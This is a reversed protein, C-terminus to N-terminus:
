DLVFRSSLLQLLLEVTHEVDRRDVMETPTHLYRGPLMLNASPVGARSLQIASGSDSGQPHIALQYPLGAQGARAKMWDTVRRDALMQGHQLVIAPGAGPKLTPNSSGPLDDSAIVGVTLGLDPKLAYAAAGAGRSGVQEQVTFACFLEFPSYQLRKLTEVLISVGIRSSLAKGFWRERLTLLSGEFAAPDGPQAPAPESSELGFDLYMDELKPSQKFDQSHDFGIVAHSGNLFHVQKGPCALPLVDGLAAIRGYGDRDIHTLILGIEDLHATLLFSQPQPENAKRHAILNGLADIHIEDVLGALAVEVLARVQTEFGSPGPTIILKELFDRM